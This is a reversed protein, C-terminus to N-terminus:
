CERERSSATNRAAIITVIIVVYMIFFVAVVVWSTEDSADSRKFRKFLDSAVMMSLVNERPRTQKNMENEERSLKM